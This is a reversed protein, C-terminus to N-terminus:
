LNVPHFPGHTSQVAGIDPYLGAFPEGNYGIPNAGSWWKHGAEVAQSDQAVVPNWAVDDDTFDRTYELNATLAIAGQRMEEAQQDYGIIRVGTSLLAEIIEAWDAESTPLDSPSTGTLNHNYINISAGTFRIYEGLASMRRPYDDPNGQFWAEGLHLGYSLHPRYGVSLDDMDYWDKPNAKNGRSAIYGADFSAQESAADGNKVSYVHTTCEWGPVYQRVKEEMLAKGGALEYENFRDEDVSLVLGGSCDTEAIDALMRSSTLACNNSTNLPVAASGTVTSWGTWADIQAALQFGTLDDTLTIPDGANAGTFYMVGDVISVTSPSPGTIELMDHNDANLSAGSLGHCSFSHGREIYPKMRQLMDETLAKSETCFSAKIGYSECLNAFVEADSLGSGNDIWRGADDIMISISGIARRPSEFKMAVNDGTNLGINGGGDTVGVTTTNAFPSAAIISNRVTLHTGGALNNLVRSSAKPAGFYCSDAVCDATYDAALSIQENDAGCFISGNINMDGATGQGRVAPYSSAGFICGEVSLTSAKGKCEVLYWVCNQIQARKLVVSGQHGTNLVVCRGAGGEIYGGYVALNAAANVNLVYKTADVGLYKINESTFDRGATGIYAFHDNLGRADVWVHGNHGPEKSARLHVAKALTGLKENYQTGVIGGDIEIVDGASSATVAAVITAAAKEWTDYPSTNNGSPSVYLTAM